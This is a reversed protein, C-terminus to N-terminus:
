IKRKRGDLGENLKSVIQNIRSRIERADAIKIDPIADEIQDFAALIQDIGYECAEPAAPVPAPAAVPAAPAAVATEPEVTVEIASAGTEPQDQAVPGASLPSADAPKQPAPTMGALQQMRRIDIMPTMGLASEDIQKVRKVQEKKVMTTQGDIIVGTTDNPGNVIKVIGDEGNVRVEAGITPDFEEEEVERDDQKEAASDTQMFLPNVEFEDKDEPSVEEPAVMGGDEDMDNGLLDNVRQEDGAAVADLADIVDNVQMKEMRSAVEDRDIGLMKAAKAIADSDSM